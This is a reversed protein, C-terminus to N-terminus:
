RGSRKMLADASLAGGGVVVLAMAMSSLALTFEIGRNSLFFGNPLHVWVMAVLMTIAILLGAVRTLLGIFVLLGGFTEVIAVISAWFTGPVIGIQDFFGATQSLGGGGFAGFLKQSGHGMMILGLAIRLFLPGYERYRDLFGLVM